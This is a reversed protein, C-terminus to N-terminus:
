LSLIKSQYSVKLPALSEKKSDRLTNEPNSGALVPMPERLARPAAKAARAKAAEFRAEAAANEEAKAAQMQEAVRDHAGQARKTQPARKQAKKTNKKETEKELTEVKEAGSSVNKGIKKEM